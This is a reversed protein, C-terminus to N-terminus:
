IPPTFADATTSPTFTATHIFTARNPESRRRFRCHISRGQVSWGLLTSSKMHQLYQAVPQLQNEAPYRFSPLTLHVTAVHCHNHSPPHALKCEVVLHCRSITGRGSACGEVGQLVAAVSMAVAAM